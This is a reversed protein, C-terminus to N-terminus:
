GRNRFLFDLVDGESLDAEQIFVRLEAVTITEPQKYRKHIASYSRGTKKMLNKHNKGRKTLGSELDRAFQEDKKTWQGLAVGPMKIVGIQM